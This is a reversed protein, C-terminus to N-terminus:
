SHTKVPFLSPHKWLLPCDSVSSPLHLLNRHSNLKHSLLTVNWTWIFTYLHGKHQCLQMGPQLFTWPSWSCQTGLSLLLIQPGDCEWSGWVNYKECGPGPRPNPKCMHVSTEQLDSKSVRQLSFLFLWLSNEESSALNRAIIHLLFSKRPDTKGQLYLFHKKNFIKHHDKNYLHPFNQYKLSSVKVNVPGVNVGFADTKM